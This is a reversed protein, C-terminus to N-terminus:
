VRFRLVPSVEQQMFAGCVESVGVLSNEGPRRHGEGKMRDRRETGNGQGGEKGFWGM